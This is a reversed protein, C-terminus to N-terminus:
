FTFIFKLLVTAPIWEGQKIRSSRFPQVIGIPILNPDIAELCGYKWLSGVICVSVVLDQPDRTSEPTIPIYFIPQFSSKQHM